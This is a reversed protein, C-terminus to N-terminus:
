RSLPPAPLLCRACTSGRTALLRICSTGQLSPLHALSSWCVHQGTPLMGTQMLQMRLGAVQARPLVGVAAAGAASREPPLVALVAQRQAVRTATHDRQAATTCRAFAFAKQGPSWLEMTGRALDTVSNVAATERRAVCLRKVIASAARSRAMCSRVLCATGSVRANAALPTVHPAAQRPLAPAAAAASSWGRLAACVHANVTRLCNVAPAAHAAAVHLAALVGTLGAAGETHGFCAQPLLTGTDAHPMHVASPVQV